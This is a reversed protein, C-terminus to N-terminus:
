IDMEKEIHKEREVNAETEECRGEIDVEAREKWVHKEREGYWLINDGVLLTVCGRLWLVTDKPRGSPPKKMEM